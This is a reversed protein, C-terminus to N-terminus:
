NARQVKLTRELADALRAALLMLTMTPNAGGASPFVSTSAVSLNPIGFVALDRDVVSNEPQKGMRTTGGPHYIGGGAEMEQRVKNLDRPELTALTNVHSAQWQRLFLEALTRTLAADKESVSWDIKARPVGLSDCDASLSIVQDDIPTQEIVAHAVFSAEDPALVRKHVFRWVIARALWPASLLLRGVLAPSPLVAKQVAQLVRRLASFGTTGTDHFGIHVFGAPMTPQGETAVEYRISRMGGDEFRFSFRKNVVARDLPVVNAIQASLHDHFFRGLAKGLMWGPQQKDVFLLLRTAEISGTAIVFREATLRLTKGNPAVARVSRLESAGAAREFDVVTANVWCRLSASRDIAERMVSAANRRSFGPWKPMRLRFGGLDMADVEDEEPAYPGDGLGFLAEVRPLFQELESLQVPWDQLRDVGQRHFDEAVFPLMAGGWIQSTGGLGRRRGDEAGGYPAGGQEVRNLLDADVSEGDSGSELLVVDIGKETLLRAILLGAIGGGIIGVSAREEVPEAVTALDNLM